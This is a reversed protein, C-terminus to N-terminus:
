SMIALDFPMFVKSTDAHICVETTDRIKLKTKNYICIHLNGESKQILIFGLYVLLLILIHSYIFPLTRNGTHCNEGLNRLLCAFM